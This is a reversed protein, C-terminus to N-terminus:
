DVNKKTDERRKTVSHRLVSVNGNVIVQYNHPKMKYASFSPSM